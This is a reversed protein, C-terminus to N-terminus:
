DHRGTGRSRPRSRCRTSAPSRLGPSAGCRMRPAGGSTSTTSSIVLDLVALV